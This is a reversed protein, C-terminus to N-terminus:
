LVYIRICLRCCLCKGRDNLFKYIIVFNIESEYSFCVAETEDNRNHLLM